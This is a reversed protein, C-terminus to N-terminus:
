LINVRSKNSIGIKVGPGNNNWIKNNELVVASDAGVLHIGSKGNFM